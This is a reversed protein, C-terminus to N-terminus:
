PWDDSVPGFNTIHPSLVQLLSEYIAKGKATPRYGIAGEKNSVQVIMSTGILDRISWEFRTYDPLYIGTSNKPDDIGETYEPLRGLMVLFQLSNDIQHRM